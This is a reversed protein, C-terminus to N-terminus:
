GGCGGCGGCGGGDGSDGGGDNGADHNYTSETSGFAYNETDASQMAHPDTDMSYIVSNLTLYYLVDREQITGIKDGLTLSSNGHFSNKNLIPISNKDKTKDAPSSDTHISNKDTSNTKSEKNLKYYWIPNISGYYERYTLIFLRIEANTIPSLPSSPTHHLYEGFLRASFEHYQRTFLIFNHWVDDIIESTMAVPLSSHSHYTNKEYRRLIVLGIYKKFEDICLSIEEEDMLNFPFRERLRSVADKPYVFRQLLQLKDRANRSKIKAFDPNFGTNSEQGVSLEANGLNHGFSGSNKNKSTLFFKLKHKGEL